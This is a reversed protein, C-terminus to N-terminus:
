FSCLFFFYTLHFLSETLVHDGKQLTTQTGSLAPGNDIIQIDERLLALFALQFDCLFFFFFTEELYSRHFFQNRSTKIGGDAAKQRQPVCSFSMWSCFSLCRHCKFFFIYIWLALCRRTVVVIIMPPQNRMVSHRRRRGAGMICQWWVPQEGRWRARARRRKLTLCIFQTHKWDFPRFM